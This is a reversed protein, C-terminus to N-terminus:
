VGVGEGARTEEEEGPLLNLEALLEVRAHPIVCGDIVSSSQEGEAGDKGVACLEGRVGQLKHSVLPCGDRMAGQAVEHEPIPQETDCTRQCM